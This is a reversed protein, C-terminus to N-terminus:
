NKILVKVWPWFKNDPKKFGLRKLESFLFNRQKDKSLGPLDNNILFSKSDLQSAAVGADKYPPAVSSENKSSIPPRLFNSLYNIAEVDTKTRNAAALCSVEFENLYM